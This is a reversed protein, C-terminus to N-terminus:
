LFKMHSPNKGAVGKKGQLQKIKHKRVLYPTPYVILERM